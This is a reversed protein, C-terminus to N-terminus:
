FRLSNFNTLRVIGCLPPYHSGLKLFLTYQLKYTLNDQRHMSIIAASNNGFIAKPNMGTIKGM